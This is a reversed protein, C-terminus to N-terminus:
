PDGFHDFGAEDLATLAGGDGRLALPSGAGPPEVAGIRSFGDLAEGEPLAVVLAYDEGGHLALALPDRGLAAAAERLEAGAIAAADIVVRVGSARALHGVDCALGDSVDIAASARGAARRGDAIRALPRRWAAVALRM